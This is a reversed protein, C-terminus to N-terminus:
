VVSKGPTQLIRIHHHVAAGDTRFMRDPGLHRPSSQGPQMPGLQQPRKGGSLMGDGHGTSMALGGGACSQPINQLPGAPRRRHEDAAVHSLEPVIDTLPCSRLAAGVVQVASPVPKNALGILTIGTKQMERRLGHQEGIHIRIM